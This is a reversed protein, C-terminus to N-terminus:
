QAQTLAKEVAKAIAAHGADNPHWGDVAMMSSDGFMPQGIDLYTVGTRKAEAMVISIVNTLGQPAPDNGWTPSVVFIRAKPLATQIGVFTARVDARLQAPDGNVDDRGGSVVVIQAGTAAVAAMRARYSTGGAESSYSSSDQSLNKEVWGKDLSVLDVWRKSPRSAGTGSAYSDGLFVAVPRAAGATASPTPSVSPAQSPQMTMQTSTALGASVPLSPKHLLTYLVLALTLPAMVIL